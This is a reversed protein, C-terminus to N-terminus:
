DDSRETYTYIITHKDTKSVYGNIAIYEQNATLLIYETKIATVGEDKQYNVHGSINSVIKVMEYNEETIVYKEAITITRGDLTIIERVWKDKLKDFVVQSNVCWYVDKTNILNVKLCKIPLREDSIMFAPTCPLGIELKKM